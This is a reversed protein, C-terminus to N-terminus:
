QGPEVQVEGLAIFATRLNAKLVRMLRSTLPRCIKHLHGRDKARSSKRWDTGHGTGSSAASLFNSWLSPQWGWSLRSYTGVDVLKFPRSLVCGKEISTFGRYLAKGKLAKGGLCENLSM